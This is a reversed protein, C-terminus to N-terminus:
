HKSKINPHEALWYMYKHDEHILQKIITYYGKKDRTVTKLKFDIKISILIAIEKLKSPIKNLIEKYKKMELKYM